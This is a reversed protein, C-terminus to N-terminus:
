TFVRLKGTHKRGRKAWEPSALVLRRVHRAFRALSGQGGDVQTGADVVSGRICCFIWLLAIGPGETV